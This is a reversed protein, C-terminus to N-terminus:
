CFAPTGDPLAWEETCTCHDIRCQATPANRCLGTCLQANRCMQRCDTRLCQAPLGTPQLWKETCTCHDVFCTAHPAGPCAHAAPAQCLQDANDCWRRCDYFRCQAPPVPSNDSPNTWVEQCACHDVRCLASPAARCPERCLDAENPCMQRCDVVHCSANWLLGNPLRWEETCTCRDVRCVAGPAARCREACLERENPCRQTCVAARSQCM